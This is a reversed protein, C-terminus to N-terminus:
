RAHLHKVRNASHGKWIAPMFTDRQQSQAYRPEFIYVELLLYIVHM